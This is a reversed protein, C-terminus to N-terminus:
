RAPRIAISGEYRLAEMKRRRRVVVAM